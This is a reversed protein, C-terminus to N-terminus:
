AASRMIAVVANKLMEVSIAVLLLGMLPLLLLLRRM